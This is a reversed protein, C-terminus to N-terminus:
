RAQCSVTHTLLKILYSIQGKSPKSPTSGPVQNSTTSASLRRIHRQTENSACSVTEETRILWVPNGSYGYVDRFPTMILQSSIYQTVTENLKPCQSKMSLHGTPSIDPSSVSTLRWALGYRLGFSVEVNSKVHHCLYTTNCGHKVAM